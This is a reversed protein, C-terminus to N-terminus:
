YPRDQWELFQNLDMSFGRFHDRNIEIAVSQEANINWIHHGSQSRVFEVTVSNGSPWKLIHALNGNIETVEKRCHGSLLIDNELNMYECSFIDWGIEQSYCHCAMAISMGLMLLFLMSTKM